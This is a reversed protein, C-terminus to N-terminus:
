FAGASEVTAPPPATRARQADRRERVFVWGWNAVALVLFLVLLPRRLAPPVRVGGWPPRGFLERARNCWWVGGLVMVVPVMLPQMRLAELVDGRLLAFVGRTTGCTPCPIGLFRRLPCIVVGNLNLLALAGIVFFVPVVQLLVRKM